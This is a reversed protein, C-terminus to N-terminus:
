ASRQLMFGALKNPLNFRTPVARARQEALAAQGPISGAGTMATPLKRSPQQGKLSAESYMLPKDLPIGGGGFGAAQGPGGGYGRELPMAAPAAPPVLAQLQAAAPPVQGPQGASQVAELGKPRARYAELKRQKEAASMIAIKTLGFDSLAKDM